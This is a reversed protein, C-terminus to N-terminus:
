GDWRLGRETDVVGRGRVLAAAAVGAGVGIVTDVSRALVMSAPDGPAALETMIMILPTFFGLALGYHRSMFLETPFLLVMVVGALVAPRPQPVLVAATVVLGALTGGVRQLARHVVAALDLPEGARVVALPVAAAATAWNAHDVGLGVGVLGAAAIAVAYRAAHVGSGSPLGGSRAVGTGGAPTRVAAVLGLAMCWGATAACLGVAVWPSVLDPRVSATAGFAFIGFFPGGPHVRLRDTALSGVVAFVTIALVLAVASAGSEAFAVGLVVGTVLLGAGHLQHRLRERPEELRGYMGAFSGFVAYLILEPRGVLLLGVGPVLLGLVVRAAHRRDRRRTAAPDLDAQLAM